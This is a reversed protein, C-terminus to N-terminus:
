EVYYSNDLAPDFREGAKEELLSAAILREAAAHEAPSRALTAPAVAGPEPSVIETGIKRAM